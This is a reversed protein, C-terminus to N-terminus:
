VPLDPARVRASRGGGRGAGREPREAVLFDAAERQVRRLRVEQGRRRQVAEHPHPVQPRHPAPASFRLRHRRQQALVLAAEADAVGRKTGRALDGGRTIVIRDLHMLKRPHPRPRHPALELRLLHARSDDHRM